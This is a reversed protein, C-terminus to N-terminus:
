AASQSHLGTESTCVSVIVGMVLGFLLWFLPASRFGVTIITASLAFVLSAVLSSMLGMQIMQDDGQLRLRILRFIHKFLLVFIWLFALLGVAGMECLVELYTNHVHIYNKNILPNNSSDVLIEYTGVGVGFIPKTKFADFALRFLEKRDLFAEEDFPHVITRVRQIYCQPMTLMAVTISVFLFFTYKKKKSVVSMFALSGMVAMVAGRSGNYFLVFFLLAFVVLGAIKILRNKAYMFFAFSFPMFYVLYVPLMKFDIEKGFVTWLRLPHFHFYDWTGGAGIIAGLLLFSGSIVHLNSLSLKRGFFNIVLPGISNRVLDVGLFFLIFYLIYRRFLIEQSHYPDLSFITSIIAALFFAAIAKNLPTPPFIGKYFRSKYKLINLVLWLFLACYCLAKGFYQYFPITLLFASLVGLLVKEIIFINKNM